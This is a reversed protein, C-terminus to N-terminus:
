RHPYRLVKINREFEGELEMRRQIGENAVGSLPTPTTGEMEGHPLTVVGYAASYAPQETSYGGSGVGGGGWNQEAPYHPTEVRPNADQVVVVEPAYQRSSSQSSSVSRSSGEGGGGCGGGSLDKEVLPTHSMSRAAKRARYMMLLGAGLAVLGTAGLSVGVGIGIKASTGLTESVQSSAEASATQSNAVWTGSGSGSGSSPTAAAATEEAFKWGNIQVGVVSTAATATSTQTAWSGDQGRTIYSLVDGEAVKSACQGTTGHSM